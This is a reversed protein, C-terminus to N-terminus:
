HFWNLFTMNDTFTKHFCAQVKGRKSLPPVPPLSSASTFMSKNEVNLGVLRFQFFYGLFPKILPLICYKWTHYYLVSQIMVEYFLCSFHLHFYFLHLRFALYYHRNFESSTGIIFTCSEIFTKFLTFCLLRMYVKKKKKKYLFPLLKLM